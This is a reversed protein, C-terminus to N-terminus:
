LGKSAIKVWTWTFSRGDASPKSPTAGAPSAAQGIKGNHGSTIATESIVPVTMPAPVLRIPIVKWHKNNLGGSSGNAVASINRMTVKHFNALSAEQCIQEKCVAPSEVVWDATTTDNTAWNIKRTFKWNATHNVLQLEVIKPTVLKVLGTITDGPKIKDAVVTPFSIFPVIEFWAYYSAKGKKSCNADTGVEEQRTQTFGGIGVWVSSYTGAKGPKCDATPVTWTGTVSKFNLPKKSNPSTAVYGAWNPSAIMAPRLAKGDVADKACESESSHCPKAALSGAATFAAVVAALLVCLFFGTRNVYSVRM